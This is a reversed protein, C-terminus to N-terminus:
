EHAGQYAAILANPVRGRDPVDLGQERAWTRVEANTPAPPDETPPEDDPDTDLWHGPPADDGAQDDDNNDVPPYETDGEQEVALTPIDAAETEDGADPGFDLGLPEWLHPRALVLPSSAHATTVGRRIKRRRGDAVVVGSRRAIMADNSTAPMATVESVPPAAPAVQRDPPIATVVPASWDIALASGTHMKRAVRADEGPENDSHGCLSPGYRHSVLSPWCYWVRWGALKFYRGIRKDYALQTKRDCWKLMREIAPVPVIIAPGWLLSHMDVWAANEADAREAVEAVREVMPRKTGVYPQVITEPPVQELAKELGALLDAAVSVDDQIVMHWDAAPDHRLWAARGNAWRQAPDESPPGATDWQVPIPRDLDDLLDAVMPERVPHAMVCASLNVM